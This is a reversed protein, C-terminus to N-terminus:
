LLRRKVRERKLYVISLLLNEPAFNVRLDQEDLFLLFCHSKKHTKHHMNGQQHLDKSGGVDVDASKGIHEDSAM